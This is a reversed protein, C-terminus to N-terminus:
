EPPLRFGPPATMLQVFRRQSEPYMRGAYKAARDIRVTIANRSAGCYSHGQIEAKAPIVTLIAPISSNEGKYRRM